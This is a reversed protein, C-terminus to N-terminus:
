PNWNVRGGFTALNGDQDLQWGGVCSAWLCTATATFTVAGVVVDYGWNGTPLDLGLLNNCTETDACNTFTSFNTRYNREAAAMLRLGVVAERDRAREVARNYLPLSISALIGMIMIVVVLEMLTFSKRQEIM